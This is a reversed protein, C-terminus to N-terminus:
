AGVAVLTGLAGNIMTVVAVYSAINHEIDNAIRIFRLKGDHTVFFAAVHRRLEMQGALVFILAAFFLVSQALAPTVAEVV